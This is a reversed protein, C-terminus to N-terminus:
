REGELPVELTVESGRGSAPRGLVLRGGVAAARERMGRVGNGDLQPAGALGRGYDRVSLALRGAGDALVLDARDSGSHRAVNTLAEQAIRYVALETEGSLAPLAPDIQRRVEIGARRGFSDALTTLASALGLDALTEPRLESAIRRVDELSARVAEQADALEIGREGLRGQARSLQLLVATLTQGVEDHLEQAVRLRESEHAALVSRASLAREQELRDLMENFALALEGAESKQGAGAFRMGPRTPDIERARSTLEQVPAVVRRVLFLNAATVICLTIILVEDTALESVRGPSLVVVAAFIAVLLVIANALVIRAFLPLYGRGPKRHTSAQVTTATAQATPASTHDHAASVPDNNRAGAHSRRPLAGPEPRRAARQSAKTL